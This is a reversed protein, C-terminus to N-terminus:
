EEELIKRAEETTEIKISDLPKDRASDKLAIWKHMEASHHAAMERCFEYESVVINSIARNVFPSLDVNRQKCFEKAKKLVLRDFNISQSEKGNNPRAM